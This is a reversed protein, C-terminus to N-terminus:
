LEAERDLVIPLLRDAHEDDLPPPERTVDVLAEMDEDPTVKRMAEVVAWRILERELRTARHLPWLVAALIAAALAIIVAAIV